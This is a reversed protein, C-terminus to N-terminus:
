WERTTMVIGRMLLSESSASSRRGCSASIDAVNPVQSRAYTVAIGKPLPWRGELEWTRVTEKFTTVMGIDGDMTALLAERDVLGNEVASAAPESVTELLNFLYDIRRETYQLKEPNFIMALLYLHGLLWALYRNDLDGIM